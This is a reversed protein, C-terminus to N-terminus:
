RRRGRRRRDASPTPEVPTLSALWGDLLKRHDKIVSAYRPEQYLNTMEWPDAKMDFLQEVPDGDYRVYKYQATRLMRGIVHHETSVFERWPTDKKELLPRLSAGRANPPAKIGAYDCLTSMVDLGSVLHDTDRHGQAMLSPCSLVLPVKVGEEYPYWKQVHMHRARGDGHDSTFVVITNDAEGSADLADLMRGIDADVM